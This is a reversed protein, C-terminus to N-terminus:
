TKEVPNYFDKSCSRGDARDHFYTKTSCANIAISSGLSEPTFEWQMVNGPQFGLNIAFETIKGCGMFTFTFREGAEREKILRAIKNRDFETSRNEMGDSLVVILAANDFNSFKEFAMDAQTIAHGLADFLATNGRPEYEELKFPEFESLPVGDRVDRIKGSFTVLSILNVQEAIADEKLQGLQENFNDVTVKRLPGMSGSKDLVFFIHNIKIPDPSQEKTKNGVKAM